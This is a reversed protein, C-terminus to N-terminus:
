SVYKKFISVTLYFSFPDYGNVNRGGDRVDQSVLGM